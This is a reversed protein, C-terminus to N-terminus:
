PVTEHAAQQMQGAFLAYAKRWAAHVQPTFSRGLTRQLTWLWADELLAYQKRTIGRAAHVQGLRDAMAALTDPDDLANVMFRLAAMFKLRQSNIDNHFLARLDPDLEFLRNFLLHSATTAVCNVMAFTQQVLQVEHPEIDM